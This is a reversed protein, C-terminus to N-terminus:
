AQDKGGNVEAVMGRWRALAILALVAAIALYGVIVAATAGFATLIPTLALVLGVTLALLSLLAFAAALGGLVAVGLVSNLAYAARTKQFALEADAAALADDVLDRIDSTLTPEDGDRDGFDAADPPPADPPVPGVPDHYDTM